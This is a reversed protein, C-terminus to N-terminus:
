SEAQLLLRTGKSVAVCMRLVCTHVRVNPFCSGTSLGQVTLNGSNHESNSFVGTQDSILRPM